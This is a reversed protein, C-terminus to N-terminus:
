YNLAVIFNFFFVKKLLLILVLNFHCVLGCEIWFHDPCNFNELSQIIFVCSFQSALQEHFPVYSFKFKEIPRVLIKMTASSVLGVSSTGWINFGSVIRIRLQLFITLGNSILEVTHFFLLFPSLHM